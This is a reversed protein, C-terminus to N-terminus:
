SQSRIKASKDSLLKGYEIMDINFRKPTYFGPVEKNDAAKRLYRESLGLKKAADKISLFRVEEM